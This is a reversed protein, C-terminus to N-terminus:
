VSWTCVVGIGCTCVCHSVPEGDRLHFRDHNTFWRRSPSGTDRQTHLHPIPTTQVHLTYNCSTQITYHILVTTRTLVKATRVTCHSPRIYYTATPAIPSHIRLAPLRCSCRDCKLTKQILRSSIIDALTFTIPLLNRSLKFNLVIVISVNGVPQPSSDEEKACTQTQKTALKGPTEKATLAAQASQKGCPSVNSDHKTRSEISSIMSQVLSPKRPSDSSSEPTSASDSDASNRSYQEVDFYMVRARNSSPAYDPEIEREKPNPPATPAIFADRSAPSALHLDSPRRRAIQETRNEGVRETTRRDGKDLNSNNITTPKRRFDPNPAQDHLEEWAEREDDPSWNNIDLKESSQPGTESFDIVRVNRLCEDYWITKGDIGEVLLPGNATTLGDKSNLLTEYLLRVAREDNVEPHREGRVPSMERGEPGSSQVFEESSRMIRSYNSTPSKSDERDKGETRTQFPEQDPERSEKQRDSMSGSPRTDQSKAVMKNTPKGHPGSMKSIKRQPAQDKSQRHPTKSRERQSTKSKQRQLLTESEAEQPLTSSRARPQGTTAGSERPTSRGRRASGSRADREAVRSRVKRQGEDRFALIKCLSSSLWVLALSHHTLFSPFASLLLFPVFSRILSRLFLLPYSHLVCLYFRSERSKCRRWLWLKASRFVSANNNFSAEGKVEGKESRDGEVARDLSLGSGTRSVLENSSATRNVSRARTRDGSAFSGSSPPGNRSPIRSVSRARTRDGSALAGSSSSRDGATPSGLSPGNTAAPRGVSRARTRDGSGPRPSAGFSSSRSVSSSFSMQPASDRGGPVTKASIVSQRRTKPGPKDLAGVSQKRLSSNTQKAYTPGMVTEVSLKSLEHMSKSRRNRAQTDITRPPTKRPSAGAKRLRSQGLNPSSSPPRSKAAGERPPKISQWFFTSSNTPINPCCKSRSFSHSFFEVRGPSSGPIGQNTTLHRIWQAVPGTHWLYASIVTNITRNVFANSFTCVQAPWTGSLISSSSTTTATNFSDQSDTSSVSGVSLSSPSRSFLGNGHCRPSRAVNRRRAHEPVSFIPIIMKLLEFDVKMIASWGRTLISRRIGYRWRRNCPTSTKPEILVDARHFVSQHILQTNILTISATFSVIASKELALGEDSCIIMQIMQESSPSPSSVDAITERVADIVRM